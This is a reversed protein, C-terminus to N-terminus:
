NKSLFFFRVQFFGVTSPLSSGVVLNEEADEWRLQQPYIQPLSNIASNYLEHTRHGRGSVQRLYMYISRNKHNFFPKNINLDHKINKRYILRALFALKAQFAFVCACFQM